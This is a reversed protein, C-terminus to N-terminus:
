GESNMFRTCNAKVYDLLPDAWEFDGPVQEEIKSVRDGDELEFGSERLADLERLAKITTHAGVATLESILSLGLDVHPYVRGNNSCVCYFGMLRGIVREEWTSVQDLKADPSDWIDLGAQTIRKDVDTDLASLKDFSDGDVNLYKELHLM